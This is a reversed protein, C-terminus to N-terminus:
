QPDSEGLWMSRKEITITFVKYISNSRSLSGTSRGSVWLCISDSGKSKQKFTVKTNFDEMAERNVITFEGM